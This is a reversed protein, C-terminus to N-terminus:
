EKQNGDFKSEEEWGPLCPKEADPLNACLKICLGDIPIEQKNDKYPCLDDNHFIPFYCFEKYRGREWHHIDMINCPARAKWSRLSIGDGM